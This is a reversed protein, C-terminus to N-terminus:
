GGIGMGGSVGLTEGTIYAAQDSALFLAAAAVEEPEGLRGLLTADTMARLIKDGGAAVAQELMPTRIPGPAIANATIRYRANERAMSKTFAIVGGKAASYVSGGRSGLRAAESTVNIIRGFRAAQMAPLVAHTCALVSTLNVAILRAWDQPSTETFFAHQDIGANNVLIDFPGHQAVVAQVAIADAVDVKAAVAGLQRSLESAPVPDLDAIVVHAGADAFNRAIAAGIGRAGGSVFARRGDLCGFPM